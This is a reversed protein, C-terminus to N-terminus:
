QHLHKTGVLDISQKGDPTKFSATPLIKDKTAQMGVNYESDTFKLIKSRAEVLSGGQKETSNGAGGIFKDKNHKMSFAAAEPPVGNPAELFDVNGLDEEFDSNNM